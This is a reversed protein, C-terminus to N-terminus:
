RITSNFRTASNFVQRQVGTTAPCGPSTSSLVVQCRVPVWGGCDPLWSQITTVGAVFPVASPHEIWGVKV